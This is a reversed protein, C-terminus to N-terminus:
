YYSVVSEANDTRKKRPGRPGDRWTKVDELTVLYVGHQRMWPLKNALIARRLVHNAVGAERAADDICLMGNFIASVEATSPRGSRKTRDPRAFKKKKERKARFTGDIEEQLQTKRVVEWPEMLETAAIQYSKMQENGYVRYIFGGHVVLGYGSNRWSIPRAVVDPRSYIYKITKDVSASRLLFRRDHM